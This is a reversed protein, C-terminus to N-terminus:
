KNRNKNRKAKKARKRASKKLAKKGEPTRAYRLFDRQDYEQGDKGVRKHISEAEEMSTIGAEALLEMVGEEKAKEDPTPGWRGKSRRTDKWEKGKRQAEFAKQLHKPLDVETREVTTMPRTVELVEGTKNDTRTITVDRKVLKIKNKTLMYDLMGAPSPRVIRVHFPPIRFWNIPARRRHWIGEEVTGTRAVVCVYQYKYKKPNRLFARRSPGYEFVQLPKPPVSQLEKIIKPTELLRSFDTLIKTKMRKLAGYKVVNKQMPADSAMTGAALFVLGVALKLWTGVSRGHQRCSSQPHTM